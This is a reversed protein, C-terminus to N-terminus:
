SHKELWGELAKAIGEFRLAHKDVREQLTNVQARLREMDDLRRSMARSVAALSDVSQNVARSMAELSEIRNALLTPHPRMECRRIRHEYEGLKAETHTARQKLETLRAYYRSDPPDSAPENKLVCAELIRNAFEFADRHTLIQSVGCVEIFVGDVQGKVQM